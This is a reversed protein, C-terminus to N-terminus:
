FKNHVRNIGLACSPGKMFSHVYLGISPADCVYVYGLLLVCSLIFFSSRLLSETFDSFPLLKTICVTARQLYVSFRSQLIKLKALMRHTRLTSLPFIGCFYPDYMFTIINKSNIEIHDESISRQNSQSTM